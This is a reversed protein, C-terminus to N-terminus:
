PLVRGCACAAGSEVSRRRASIFVDSKGSATSISLCIDHGNLVASIAKSQHSYLGSPYKQNLYDGVDPHLELPPPLLSAQRQPLEIHQGIKIGILEAVGAIM